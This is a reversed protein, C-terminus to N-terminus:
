IQMVLGGELSLGAIGTLMQARFLEQLEEDAKGATVKAFLRGAEAESLDATQATPHGHDTATAGLTKFFQRRAALAKLYGRWTTTDEGTMEGLARVGGAFGDFAPDVVADSIPLACT